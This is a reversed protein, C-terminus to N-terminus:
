EASGREGGLLRAVIGAVHQVGPDDDRRAHWALHLPFGDVPIPPMFSAFAGDDPSPRARSPMMAILDSNALLAPVMVFSPVVMGVRRTRGHKRLADDLAGHTEGRGSVLVHPYRLWADLDFARAAPHGERMVVAYHEDLLHTCRFPAGLAPFISVALDAAGKALQDLAAEAGHWPQVVVDIGPATEQLAAHLPGTVAIAPFDAMVIRVTQALTSLDTSPPALVARVEALLNALPARLSEAKPTLRMTGRGRELLPDRFLHRCRDLANSM